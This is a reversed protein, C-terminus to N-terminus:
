LHKNGFTMNRRRRLSGLFHKLGTQLVSQLFQVHDVRCDVFVRLKLKVCIILSFFSRCYPSTVTHSTAIPSRCSVDTVSTVCGVCVM